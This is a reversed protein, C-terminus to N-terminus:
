QVTFVPGSNLSNLSWYCGDIDLCGARWKIEYSRLPFMSVDLICTSFGQGKGNPRFCVITEAIQGDFTHNKDCKYVYKVIKDNLEIMNDDVLDRPEMIIDGAQSAHQYSTKCQLICYLKTLRVRSEPLIDNLQLCLDLHLHYGKPVSINKGDGSDRNM